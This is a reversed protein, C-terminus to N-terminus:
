MYSKSTKLCKPPDATDKGVEYSTGDICTFTRAGLNIYRPKCRVTIVEAAEVPFQTDTVAHEWTPDLETCGSLKTKYCKFFTKISSISM